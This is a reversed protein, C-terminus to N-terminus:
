KTDNKNSNFQTKFEIYKNKLDDISKELGRIYDALRLSGSGIKDAYRKLEDDYSERWKEQMKYRHLTLEEKHGEFGETDEIDWCPDSNWNHKLDEIDKRTAM